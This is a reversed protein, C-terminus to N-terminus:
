KKKEKSKDKDASKKPAAPEINMEDDAVDVEEESEQEDPESLHTALNKMLDKLGEKGLNSSALQALFDVKINEQPPLHRNMEQTVIDKVKNISASVGGSDKEVLAERMANMVTLSEDKTNKLHHKMRSFDSHLGTVLEQVAKRFWPSKSIKIIDDQTPAQKHAALFDDYMAGGKQLYQKAFKIMAKYEDHASMSTSMNLSKGVEEHGQSEPGYSTYDEPKHRYVQGAPLDNDPEDEKEREPKKYQKKPKDGWFPSKQWPKKEASSEPSQQSSQPSQPLPKKAVASVKKEKEKESADAEILRVAERLNM